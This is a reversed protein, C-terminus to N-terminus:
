KLMEAAKELVKKEVEEIKGFVTCGSATPHGGGKFASALRNVDVKGKSRFSVKVRDETGTERFLIAIEVGDISRPFSIIGETGELSAKTKKLMEKTVWLWAIKGDETLKMTQLSEGLLSIDQISSAEYIKAQMEYPEVGIDILEAAIKHTKSSTNSYRFSGTDTMIAAYLPVADDLDIKVKFAKFLDHVMEGASSFEPEVWNFKGFNINSIHHDINIIVADKKICENVKGIRALDPSDLIIVAQYDFDHPMVKSIEETGKIFQLVSPVPSDDLMVAVKGLKRLLNAMAIQSGVADAEPNIHSTILFKNFKKIAAKVRRVSM